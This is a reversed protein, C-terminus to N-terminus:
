ALRNEYAIIYTGVTNVVPDKQPVAYIVADTMDSVSVDLVKLANSYITHIGHSLTTFAPSHLPKQRTTAIIFGGLKGDTSSTIIKMVGDGRIPATDILNSTSAYSITSWNYEQDFFGMRWGAKIWAGNKTQAGLRVGFSIYRTQTHVTFYYPTNRARISIADYDSRKWALGDAEPTGWPSAGSNRRQGTYDNFTRFQDFQISLSTTTTTDQDAFQMWQPFDATAGM